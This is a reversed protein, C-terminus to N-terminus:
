FRWTWTVYGDDWDVAFPDWNVDVNVKISTCGGLACSGVKDPYSCGGCKPLERWAWCIPDIPYQRCFDEMSLDIQEEGSVAMPEVLGDLELQNKPTKIKTKDPTRIYMEIYRNLKDKDQALAKKVDDPLSSLHDKLQRKIDSLEGMEPNLFPIANYLFEPDLMQLIVEEPVGMGRLSREIQVVFEKRTKAKFKVTM